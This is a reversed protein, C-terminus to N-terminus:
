LQMGTITGGTGATAVFIDVKGQTQSWIEPGTTMYHICPNAASDFQLTTVLEPDERQLREYVGLM